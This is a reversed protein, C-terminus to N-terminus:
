PCFPILRISSVYTVYEQLKAEPRMNRSAKLYTRATGGNEEERLRFIYIGFRSILVFSTCSLETSATQNRNDETKKNHSLTIRTRNVTKKQLFFINDVISNYPAALVALKYM